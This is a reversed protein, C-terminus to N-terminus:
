HNCSSKLQVYALNVNSAFCEFESPSQTRKYGMPEVATTKNIWTVYKAVNTYGGPREEGCGFGFSTIGGLVYKAEEYLDDQVRCVLPGGSDGQCADPGNGGACIIGNGYWKIMNDQCTEDSMVPVKAWLLQLSRIELIQIKNNTM